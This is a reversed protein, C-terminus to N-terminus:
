AQPEAQVVPGGSLVEHVWGHGRALGVVRILLAAELMSDFRTLTFVPYLSGEQKGLLHAAPVPLTPVSMYASSMGVGPIRMKLSM